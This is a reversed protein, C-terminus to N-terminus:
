QGQSSMCKIVRIHLLGRSLKPGGKRSGGAAPGDVHGPPGSRTAGGGAETSPCAGPLVGGDTEGASRDQESARSMVVLTWEEVVGMRKEIQQQELQQVRLQKDVQQVHLVARVGAGEM